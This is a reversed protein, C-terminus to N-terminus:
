DRGLYPNLYLDFMWDPALLGAALTEAQVALKMDRDSEFPNATADHADVAALFQLETAEIPKSM